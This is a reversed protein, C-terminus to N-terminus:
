IRKETEKIRTGGLGQLWEVICSVKALYIEEEDPTPQNPLFPLGPMAM